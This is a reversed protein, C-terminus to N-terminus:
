TGMVAVHMDTATVSACHQSSYMRFVIYKGTGLSVALRGGMCSSGTKVNLLEENVCHINIHEM